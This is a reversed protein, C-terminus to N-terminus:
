VSFRPARNFGQHELHQLLGHVADSWPGTPRTVIGDAMTFTGSANGMSERESM